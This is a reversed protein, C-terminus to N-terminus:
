NSSVWNSGFGIPRSFFLNFNLKYKRSGLLHSNCIIICYFFTSSGDIILKINKMLM